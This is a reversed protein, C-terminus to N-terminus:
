AMTNPQTVMHAFANSPMSVLAVLAHYTPVPGKWAASSDLLACAGALLSRVRLGLPWSETRDGHAIIAFGKRMLANIVELARDGTAPDDALGVVAASSWPRPKLAAVDSVGDIWTVEFGCESAVRAILQRRSAQPDRVIVRPTAGPESSKEPLQSM